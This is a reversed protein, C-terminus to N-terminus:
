SCWVFRPIKSKDAAKSSVFFVFSGFNNVPRIQIGYNESKGSVWEQFINTLDILYWQEKKPAPLPQTTIARAGPKDKWWLRDGRKFDWQKIIRDVELPVSAGESEKSYLALGAFRPYMRLVPIEFQILAFYWDGWGGVRLEDNDLGGGPGGGGPAFSYVNTTWVDKWRVRADDSTLLEASKCSMLAALAADAGFVGGRQACELTLESNCQAIAQAQREGNPREFVRLAYLLGAALLVAAAAFVSWYLARSVRRRKRGVLDEIAAILRNIHVNFDRGSSLEIAQRFAFRRISAPLSEVAPMAVGDILVPIVPINKELAGEIELRVYDDKNSLRSQDAGTVGLWNPGIVALVIDSKRLREDLATPFDTGILIGEIDFFIAGKGFRAELRDCIRGIILKTDARRYSLFISLMHCGCGSEACSYNLGFKGVFQLEPL